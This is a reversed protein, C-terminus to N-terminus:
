PQSDSIANDQQAKLACAISEFCGIHKNKGNAFIVARFKGNSMPYIGSHGTKSCSYAGKKFGTKRKKQNLAQEKHTAWRCNEPCYNKNPDIRDLTKGSPRCGMDSVFFEFNDWRSCVSVGKGGYIAYDKHNPNNCRERMGKWTRYLPHRSSAVGDILKTNWVM